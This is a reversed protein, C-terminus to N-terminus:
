RVISVTKSATEGLAEITVFYIGSPVIEASQDRGDWRILNAGSNLQRGSAVERVLRGARNYIKVTVPGPQGLTFSIAVEGSAFNGRPSFVRPTVALDSMAGAGAIVGTEAFVAYRGPQTIPASIKEGGADVTGGLRRWTSDAGFVYLAPREAPGDEASEIGGAWLYKIELTAAKDLHGGDWSIEYGALVRRAGTDLSEPVEMETLPEIRIERDGPLAHPPFYLHVEENTTYVSGGSSNSVTAPATQNAWPAQNDVIVRIMTNGVLGLTDSVGLRLEYSGDPLLATNWGSLIGYDVPASADAIPQWASEGAARYEVRYSKFRADAAAGLIEISDQIAQGFTPSVIVPTPPTADVEFVCIAPTPDVNGIQDRAKVRLIHQGDALGAITVSGQSSWASWPSDDFSHSFLIGSTEKYAAGYSLVQMTSTSLRPPQPSIVARPAVSDRQHFTIPAPFFYSHALWLNGSRDEFVRVVWDSSLGDNVTYIGWNAGDWRALGGFTGFWVNGDSDAAISFVRDDVLGDATGLTRWTSGDYLCVGRAQGFSVWMNGWRDEAMAVVGSSALGSAETFSQWDSGDFSGVGGATGFWMRGSHDMLVVRVDSNILGSNLATYTAWNVGDFRCVGMGTGFWMNGDEDETMSRVGWSLSAHDTFTIWNHGDYRTLGGIAGFWIQGSAQGFVSQVHDSPLGDATTYTAWSAGDYRVAGYMTAFWIDGLRDQEIDVVGKGLLAGERGLSKWEVGDYRIVGGGGGFWVNGAHDEFVAYCAVPVGDAYGFTRWRDGDFRHVNVWVFGSSTAVIRDVQDVPYGNVSGIATWTTGDYRAIGDQAAFWLNGYSDEVMTQIYSASLGALTTFSTWREGDYRSLGSDTGFWLNGHSDELMAYLYNSVLGDATTFARWASGDYCCAGWITLFWVRGSRDAYTKWSETVLPPADVTSWAHGDFRSVGGDTVVWIRGSRDCLLQKATDGALGDVKGLTTCHEGDFRRLVYDYPIAWVNGQHDATMASICCDVSGYTEMPFSRWTIGDFCSLYSETAFWLRGDSDEVMKYVGPEPLGDRVGFYQWEGVAPTAACLLTLFLLWAWLPKM